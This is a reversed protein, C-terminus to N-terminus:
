MWINHVQAAHNKFHMTSELKAECLPHPCEPSEVWDWAKLHLSEVHKILVDKRSFSFTRSSSCLTEDGLCFLCQTGPCEIPFLNPDEDESKECTEKTTKNCTLLRRRPQPRPMRRGCLSAMNRMAELRSQYIEQESMEAVDRNQFLLSVLRSREQFEFIPTTETYEQRLGRRQEDIYRTSATRFFEERAKEEILREVKKKRNNLRRLTTQYRELLETAKTNKIKKGNATLSQRLEIRQKELQQVETDLTIASRDVQISTPAAPDRTLSMHGALKIM